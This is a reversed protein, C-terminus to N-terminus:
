YWCCSSFVFGPVPPQIAYLYRVVPAYTGWSLPVTLLVLIGLLTDARKAAEAADREEMDTKASTLSVRRPLSGTLVHPSAGTNRLYCQQHSPGERRISKRRTGTILTFGHPCKVMFNLLALLFIRMTRDIILSSYLIKRLFDIFILYVKNYFSNM